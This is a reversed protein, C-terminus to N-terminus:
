AHRAMDISHLLIHLQESTTARPSSLAGQALGSPSSNDAETANIIAQKQLDTGPPMGGGGMGALSIEETIVSLAGAGAETQVSDVADLTQQLSPQQVASFPLAGTPM